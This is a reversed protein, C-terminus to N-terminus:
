NNKIVNIVVITQDDDILDGEYQLIENSLGKASTQKSNSLLEDLEKKIGDSTLVIFDSDISIAKKEVKINEIIGLPLNESSIKEVSNGQKIYTNGSGNKYLVSCRGFIDYELLDLTNFTEGQKDLLLANCSEIAESPEMGLEIFDKLLALAKSSEQNARKGSGMGDSIMFYKKNKTEFTAYSDGCVGGDKSRQKIVYDFRISEDNVIEYRISNLLNNFSKRKIKLKIQLDNEFIELIKEDGIRMDDKVELSIKYNYFYDGSMRFELIEAKNYELERMIQEKIYINDEEKLKNSLFQMNSVLLDKTKKSMKISSKMYEEVTAM